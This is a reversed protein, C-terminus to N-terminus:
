FGEKALRRCIQQIHEHVGFIEQVVLLIPASSSKRPRAYYFPLEFGSSEIKAWGTDLGEADAQIATSAIPYAALAYGPEFQSARSGM